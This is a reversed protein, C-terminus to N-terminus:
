RRTDMAAYGSSCVTCGRKRKKKKKKEDAPELRSTVNVHMASECMCSDEQLDDQEKTARQQQQQQQQRKNGAL